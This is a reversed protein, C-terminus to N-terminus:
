LYQLMVFSLFFLLWGVYGDLRKLLVPTRYFRYLPYFLLPFNVYALYGFLDLNVEGLRKGINGVMSTDHFITSFTGYALVIAGIIALIQRM